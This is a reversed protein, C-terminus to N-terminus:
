ITCNTLQREIAVILKKITYNKYKSVHLIVGGVGAEPCFKNQGRARLNQQLCFM